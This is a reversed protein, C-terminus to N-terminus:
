ELNYKDWLPDFAFNAKKLWYVGMEKDIEVGQGELYVIALEKAAIGAYKDSKANEKLKVIRDKLHKAAKKNGSKASKVIWDIAETKEEYYKNSGYGYTTRVVSNVVAERRAGYEYQAIPIGAYAGNRYWDTSEGWKAPFPRIKGDNAKAIDIMQQATDSGNKAALQYWKWAENKDKKTGWGNMYSKALYLQAFADGHLASKKLLNFGIVEDEKVNDGIMYMIALVAMAEANGQEVAVTLWNLAQRRDKKIHEGKEYIKYLAYSSKKNGYQSSKKYWKILEPYNQAEKYYDILYEVSSVRGKVAREKHFEIPSITVKTSTTTKNEVSKTPTSKQIEAVKKVVQNSIKKIKGNVFNNVIKNSIKQINEIDDYDVFLSSSQILLLINDVKVLTSIVISTKEGDYVQSMDGYANNSDIFNGIHEIDGKLFVRLVQNNSNVGNTCLNVIDCTKNKLSRTIREFEEDSILKDSLGKISFVEVIPSSSNNSKLTTLLNHYQSTKNNIDSVFYADLLEISIAKDTAQISISKAVSITAFLISFVLVFGKFFIIM